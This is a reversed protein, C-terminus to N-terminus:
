GISTQSLLLVLASAAAILGLLGGALWGLLRTARGLGQPEILNLLRDTM